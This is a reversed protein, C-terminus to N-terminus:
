SKVEAATEEAAKRADEEAVLRRAEEEVQQARLAAAAEDAKRQREDIQPQALEEGGDFSFPAGHVTHGQATLSAIFSSLTAKANDIDGTGRITVQWNKM